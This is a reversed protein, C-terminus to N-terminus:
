KAASLLAGIAGLALSPRITALLRTGEFVDIQDTRGNTSWLLTFTCGQMQVTAYHSGRRDSLARKRLTDADPEGSHFRAHHAGSQWSRRLADSIQRRGRPTLRRVKSIM